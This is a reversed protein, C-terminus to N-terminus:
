LADFWGPERGWESPVPYRGILDDLEENCLAKREVVARAVVEDSDDGIKAQLLLLQGDPTLGILEITRKLEELLGSLDDGEIVVIPHAEVEARFLGADTRDITITLSM